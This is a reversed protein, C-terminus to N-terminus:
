PQYAGLDNTGTRAVGAFDDFLPVYTGADVGYGSSMKWTTFTDTPPVTYGPSTGTIQAVSSNNSESVTGSGIDVGWVAGSSASPAYILNNKAVTGSPPSGTDTSLYCLRVSTGSASTHMTNNYINTSIPEPITANRHGVFIGDRGTSHLLLNNRITMRELVETVILASTNGNGNIFNREVIIDRHRENYNTNQPAVQVAWASGSSAKIYNDSVICKEIWQGSWTGAGGSTTGRITLPSKSTAPVELNNHQILVMAAHTRINHEISTCDYIRNGLVAVGTGGASWFGVYGSGGALESLNCDQMFINNGSVEPGGVLTIRLGLMLHHSGTGDNTSLAKCSNGSVGIIELGYFANNVNGNMMQFPTAGAGTIRILPKAGTGFSGVQANSVNMSTASPVDWQEGCRLLVRKGANVHGIVTSWTSTTVNNSGSPAGTFTGSTSICVTNTGSYTTDAAAVTITTSSTTGVSLTGASSVTIPTCKVTYTGATEFVHAAVGGRAKNKSNDNALTGYTWATETDGFHWIYLIDHFNDIGLSNTTGTADFFVAMPATGTTRSASASTTIGGTGTVSNGALAQSMVTALDTGGGGGGGGTVTATGTGDSITAGVPNSLVLSFAVAPADEDIITGTGSAGGISLTYTESGEVLADSSTPVSVTFSTVGAPVTITGGSITVGNSFAGSTLTSTYDTGGGTATGGSLTLSYTQAAQATGTITVTHVIAAAETASASSVSTVTPASEDDTITGTNTMSGVRVTYTETGEYVTDQSTAVTITFSSVALPVTLVGGSLTVGASFTPTATYDSPASASGGITFTYQAPVGVVSSVLTVTHVLSTGEVQTASTISSVSPGLQMFGMRMLLKFLLRM